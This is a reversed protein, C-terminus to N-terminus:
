FSKIKDTGKINRAVTKIYEIGNGSLFRFSLRALGQRHLKDYESYDILIPSVVFPKNTRSIHFLIDAPRTLNFFHILAYQKYDVKDNTLCIDVEIGSLSLQHATNEIQVTDGGRQTFLTSRSVFLVKM